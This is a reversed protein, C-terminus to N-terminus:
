TAHIIKHELITLIELSVTFTFFFFVFLGYSEKWSETPIKNLQIIETLLQNIVYVWGGDM